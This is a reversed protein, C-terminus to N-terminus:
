STRRRRNEKDADRSQATPGLQAGGGLPKPKCQRKGEELRNRGGIEAGGDAAKENIQNKAEFSVGGPKRSL